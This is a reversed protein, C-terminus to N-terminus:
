RPDIVNHKPRHHIDQNLIEEISMTQVFNHDYLHYVNVVQTDRSTDPVDFLKFFTLTGKTPNTEDPDIRGTRKIAVTMENEHLGLFFLGFSNQIEVQLMLQNDGRDLFSLMYACSDEM